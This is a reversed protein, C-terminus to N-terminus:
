RDSQTSRKIKDRELESLIEDCAATVQDATKTQIAGSLFASLNSPLVRFGRGKLQNCLWVQTKGLELLRIKIRYRM